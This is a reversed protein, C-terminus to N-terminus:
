TPDIQETADLALVLVPAPSGLAIRIIPPCLTPCVEPKFEVSLHTAPGAIAIPTSFATGLVFVALISKRSAMARGNFLVQQV